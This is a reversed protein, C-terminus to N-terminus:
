YMLTLDVPWSVPLEYQLGAALGQPQVRVPEASGSAEEPLVEIKWENEEHLPAEEAVAAAQAAAQRAAKAESSQYQQQFAAQQERCQPNSCGPNPKIDMTPFFDKLSSYGLYRTM